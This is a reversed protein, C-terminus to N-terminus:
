PNQSIYHASHPVAAPRRRMHAAARHAKTHQTWDQRALSRMACKHSFAGSHNGSSRSPHVQAALPGGRRVQRFRGQRQDGRSTREWREPTFSRPPELGRPFRDEQMWYWSMEGGWPVTQKWKPHWRIRRAVHLRDWKFWAGLPSLVRTAAAPSPALPDLKMAAQWQWLEQCGSGLVDSSWATIKFDAHSQIQSNRRTELCSTALCIFALTYSGGVQGAQDTDGIAGKANM